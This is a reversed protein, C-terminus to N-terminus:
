NICATDKRLLKHYCLLRWIIIVCSAFAFAFVVFSFGAVDKLLSLFLFYNARKDFYVSINCIKIKVKDKIKM